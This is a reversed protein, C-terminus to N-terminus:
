NSKRTPVPLEKALEVALLLGKVVREDGGFHSAFKVQGIFYQWNEEPAGNVWISIHQHAEDIVAKMKSSISEHSEGLQAKVATRRVKDVYGKVLGQSKDM